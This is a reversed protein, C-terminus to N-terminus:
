ISGDGGTPPPGPATSACRESVTEESRVETLAQDLRPRLHTWSFGEVARVFSDPDGPLQGPSEGKGGEVRRALATLRTALDEATGDYLHRRRLREPLRALLEPYALRDPLLPFAGAAMAEAASVGFFEHIATAVFVDAEALARRYDGVDELYGWRDIRHRFRERGRAFVEPVERFSEGLVSIRYEAGSAELLDLAAFLDRPNKDHEWRAAWLLRLPGPRRPPRPPQPEIGQPYVRSRRRLAEIEAGPRPEPLGRFLEELASLFVRRHYRSNFWTEDAAVATSFNTFAFHLDRPDERRVPYTLQNEHFYAVTPLARLAPPALGLFQALDLMDTAFILDWPGAAAQRLAAVERAFTLASHRMRWKWHFPPLTLLTWRHRSDRSWGELFARHSGGFYPELALIRLTAPPPTM